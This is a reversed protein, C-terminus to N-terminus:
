PTTITTSLHYNSQIVKFTIKCVQNNQPETIYVYLLTHKKFWAKQGDIPQFLPMQRYASSSIGRKQSLTWLFFFRFVGRVVYWKFVISSFFLLDINEPFASTEFINENIHISLCLYIVKPMPSPLPVVIQLHCDSWPAWTVFEQSTCGRPSHCSNKDGIEWMYILFITFTVENLATHLEVDSFFVVIIIIAWALVDRESLFM